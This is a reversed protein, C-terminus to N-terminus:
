DLRITSGKFWGSCVVGEIPKGNVGEATFADHFADKEDCGFFAYGNMQINTYGAGELARKANSTNTCGSLAAAIAVIIFLKKM